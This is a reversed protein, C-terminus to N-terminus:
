AQIEEVLVSSTMIGGYLTASNSGNMVAAQANECGARVKYVIASTSGANANYVLTTPDPGPAGALNCVAAALADADSDKFLAVTLYSSTNTNESGNFVVSVRVKNSASSHTADPATLFLDGETSQPKTNDYPIATAAGVVLSQSQGCALVRATGPLAVGPGFGQVTTLATAWTGATAQTSDIFGVIAWPQSSRSTTSYFVRASDAAGAGGEATTSITSQMGPFVVSHDASSINNRLALEPTGSNKIAVVWIRSAVGNVTGLTSGSSATVTITSALTVSTGDNFNLTTGAALSATLANSGISATLPMFGGGSAAPAQAVREDTIMSNTIATSASTLLVQAVPLKGATLAPASPSVGSTGTIVSVVGTTADIVVRDIRSNSVPATITGTTQIANEVVAGAVLLAGAAVKVTMNPTSAAYAQYAAGIRAVVAANGDLKAKYSAADDLTYDPIQFQATTM